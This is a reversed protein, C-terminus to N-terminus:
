LCFLSHISLGGLFFPLFVFYFWEVSLFVWLFESECFSFFLSFLSIFFLFWFLNCSGIFLVDM